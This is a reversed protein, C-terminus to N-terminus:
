WFWEIDLGIYAGFLITEFVRKGCFTKDITFAIRPLNPHRYTASDFEMVFHFNNSQWAHLREDTNVIAYDFTTTDSPYLYSRNAHDHSFGFIFSFNEVFHDFKVFEDIHWILGRKELANGRTLRIWGRQEVATKLPAIIPKNALWLVGGQVGITLWDFAGISLSAMAPIGWHGNYGLPLSFVCNPTQKKGTPFNVGATLTFDVYDLDKTDEYNLAWGGYLQIDGLGSSRWKGLRVDYYALQQELDNFWQQWEVYSIAHGSGHLPTQDYYSLDKISASKVPITLSAFFGHKFHQTFTPLFEVLSYSGTITTQGFTNAIPRKEWLNNIFSSPNRDLICAPVGKALAFLNENGYINLIGGSYGCGNFGRNAHGGRLDLVTSTMWDKGLLPEACFMRPHTFSPYYHMAIIHANISCLCAIILCRRKSLM